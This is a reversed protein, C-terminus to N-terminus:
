PHLRQTRNKMELMKKRLSEQTKEIEKKLEDTSQEMASNEEPINHTKQKQFVDIPKNPTGKQSSQNEVQLSENTPTLISYDIMQHNGSRDTFSLIKILCGTTVTSDMMLVHSFHSPIKLVVRRGDKAGLVLHDQQLSILYGIFSIPGNPRLPKIEILLLEYRYEAYNYMIKISVPSGIQLTDFLTTEGQVYIPYPFREIFFSSNESNIQRVRGQLAFGEKPITQYAAQFDRLFQVCQYPTVNSHRTIVGWELRNNRMQVLDQVPINAEKSVLLLFVADFPPINYIFRTELFEVPDIGYKQELLSSIMYPAISQDHSMTTSSNKFEDLSRNLKYSNYVDILSGKESGFVPFFTTISILLALTVPVAFRRTFTTVKRTKKHTEVRDMVSLLMNDEVVHAPAMSNLFTQISKKEQDM